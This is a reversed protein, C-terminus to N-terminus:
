MKPTHTFVPYALNTVVLLDLGPLNKGRDIIAIEPDCQILRISIQLGCLRCHRGLEGCKSGLLGDDFGRFRRDSNVLRGLGEGLLVVLAVGM